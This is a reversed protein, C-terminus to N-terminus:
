PREVALRCMMEVGTGLADDNFDFTPTHLGPYTHWGEPKIGLMFFCAPAYRAYYSFDEGGMSPEERELFRAEGLAACAIRTMRETPAADNETAPYGPSWDIQAHAGFASATNEILTRFEEEVFRRTDERLTRVTGKMTATDPIVNYTTGAHISGVTVVVPDVPSVRRSAITQLASVVHAGVVVPDVCFHPYAAHGGKGRITVTFEDTAALLPGVRTAVRGLGLEPWCHLGYVMDAPRGIRSGDLAGDRCMKDAGAGGEEAPQFLLLANNPRELRSLVRAAGLLIATHGDHGCAHMLGPRTSAYPKGTEEEIPLADMDARLAITPASAPDATTAPLWGLVGTGGALGAVHEVGVSALESAVLDSTREEQFMLEPHSHIDRRLEVVRGVEANVRETLESAPTPVPASQKM